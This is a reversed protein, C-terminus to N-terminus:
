SEKNAVNAVAESVKESIKDDLKKDEWWSTALSLGAGALPLAVALIKKVDIKM